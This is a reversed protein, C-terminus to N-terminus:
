ALGKEDNDSESTANNHMNRSFAPQVVDTDIVSIDKETLSQAPAIFSGSRIGRARLRSAMKLYKATVTEKGYQATAGRFSDTKAFRAALSECMRAAAKLVTGELGLAYLIEEDEVLHQAELTDGVEFRVADLQRDKPNVYSFTM